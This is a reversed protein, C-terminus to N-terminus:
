IERKSYVVTTLECMIISIIVSTIVLIITTVSFLNFDLIVFKKIIWLFAAMACTGIGFAIFLLIESNELNNGGIKYALYIHISGSIIGLALTYMAINFILFTNRENVVFNYIIDLMIGSFAGLVCLSLLEIYKSQIIMKRTIPMTLVEKDWKAAWDLKLSSTTTASFILPPIVILGIGYGRIICYVLLIVIIAITTSLTEKIIFLDKLILGKM